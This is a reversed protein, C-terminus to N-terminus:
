NLTLLYQVKHVLALMEDRINLLDSDNPFENTLGILYAEFSSITENINSTNYNVVSGANTGINRGYKGMYTEMFDDALDHIGDYLEGLAKHQSFSTTLWHFIHIQMVFGLFTSALNQM